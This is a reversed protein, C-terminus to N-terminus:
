RARKLAEPSDVDFGALRFNDVPGSILAGSLLKFPLGNIKLTRGAQLQLSITSESYLESNETEMQVNEKTQLAGHAITQAAMLSQAGTVSQLATRLREIEAQQSDITPERACGPCDDDISHMEHKTCYWVM